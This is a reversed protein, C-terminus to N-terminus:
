WAKYLVVQMERQLARLGARLGASLCGPVSGRLVQQAPLGAAARWGDPHVDWPTLVVGAATLTRGDDDLMGLDVAAGLPTACHARTPLGASALSSQLPALCGFRAHAVRRAASSPHHWCLPLASEHQKSPPTPPPTPASKTVRTTLAHRTAPDLVNTPDVHLTTLARNALMLAVAPNHEPTPPDFAAQVKPAFGALTGKAAAALIRDLSGHQRLLAKASRAGIGCGRLGAEPKGAPPHCHTTIRVINM